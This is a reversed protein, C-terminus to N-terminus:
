VIGASSFPNTFTVTPPYERKQRRAADELLDDRMRKLRSALASARGAPNVQTQDLETITNIDLRTVDLYSGMRSAAGMVIIQVWQELIGLDSLKDTLKSPRTFETKLTVYTTEGSDVQSLVIARNSDFPPYNQLLHARGSRPHDNTDLWTVAAVGVVDSDVEQPEGPDATLTVTKLGWLQPHLSMIEDAVADFAVQRAFTPIFTVLTDDSHTAATTGNHGRRVTMTKTNRNYAVVMMQENRVEAVVGPALINKEQPSLMSDDIKVSAATTSGIAGDLTAFIPSQAAPSLWERYLRDIVDGITKTSLDPDPNPDVIIGGGDDDDVVPAYGTLYGSYAM